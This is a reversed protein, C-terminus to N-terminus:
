YTKSRNAENWVSNIKDKDWRSPFLIKQPRQQFISLIEVPGMHITKTLDAPMYVFSNKNAYVTLLHDMHKQPDLKVVRHKIEEYYPLKELSNNPDTVGFIKTPFEKVIVEFGYDADTLRYPFYIDIEDFVEYMPRNWDLRPMKVFEAIEFVKASLGPQYKSYIDQNANFFFTAVSERIQVHFWGAEDMSYLPNEPRPSGPCIFVAHPRYEIAFYTILLEDPNSGCFCVSNKRNELANVGYKFPILTLIDAIGESFQDKLWVYDEAGNKLQDEEPVTITIQNINYHNFDASSLINIMSRLNGDSRIDYLGTEYSRMSYQQEIAIKDLDFARTYHSIFEQVSKNKM